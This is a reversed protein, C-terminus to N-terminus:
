LADEHWKWFQPHKVLEVIKEWFSLESPKIRPNKCKPCGHHAKIDWVSVVHGCLICRYFQMGGGEVEQGQTSVTGTAHNEM